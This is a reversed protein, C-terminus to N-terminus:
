LYILLLYLYILHLYIPLDLTFIPLDLTFIPLDVAFILLLCLYILLGSYIPRKGYGGKPRMWFQHPTSRLQWRRSARAATVFCPRRPALPKQSPCIHIPSDDWDVGLTKSSLTYITTYIYTYVRYILKCVTYQPGPDWNDTHTRKKKKM